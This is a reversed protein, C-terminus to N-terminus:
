KDRSERYRPLVRTSPTRRLAFTMPRVRMEGDLLILFDNVRSHAEVVAVDPLYMEVDGMDLMTLLFNPTRRILDSRFLYCDKLQAMYLTQLM